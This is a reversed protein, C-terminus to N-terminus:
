LAIEDQKEQEDKLPLLGAQSRGPLCIVDFDRRVTLSATLVAFKLEWVLQNKSSENKILAM